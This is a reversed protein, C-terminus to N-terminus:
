VPGIPVRIGGFPLVPLGQREFRPTVRLCPQRQSVGLHEAVVPEGRGRRLCRRHGQAGVGVGPEGLAVEFVAGALVVHLEQAVV